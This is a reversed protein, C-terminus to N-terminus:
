LQHAPLTGVQTQGNALSYLKTGSQASVFIAPILVKSPDDSEAQTMTILEASNGANEGDPQNYIIAAAAGALQTCGCM